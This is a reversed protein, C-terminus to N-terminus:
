KSFPALWRSMKLNFRSVISAIAEFSMLWLRNSLSPEISMLVDSQQRAGLWGQRKPPTDEPEFRSM